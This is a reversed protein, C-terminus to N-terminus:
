ILIFDCKNKNKHQKTIQGIFTTKNRIWNIIESRACIDKVNLNHIM